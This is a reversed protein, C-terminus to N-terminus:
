QQDSGSLTYKMVCPKIANAKALKDTGCGRQLILVRNKSMTIAYRSVRHIIVIFDTSEVSATSQFM